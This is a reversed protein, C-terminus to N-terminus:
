GVAKKQLCVMVYAFVSKELNVAFQRMRDRRFLHQCFGLWTAETIDEISEVWFGCDCCMQRYTRLDPVTESAPVSWAGIWETNHFLIDTLILQGEPKLVRYASGLFKSRSAFHFAAEISIIQDYYADPLQLQTADMVRYRAMPHHQRAYEVQTPSINIGLVEANPYHQAILETGAGLGCGVDLIRLPSQQSCDAELRHLHRNVLTQCAEPLNRAGQSWDGVNYFDTNQYLARMSPGLIMQDYRSVFDADALSQPNDM